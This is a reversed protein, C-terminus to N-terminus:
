SEKEVRAEDDALALLREDLQLIVRANENTPSVAASLEARQREITKRKEAISERTPILKNEQNVMRAHIRDAFVLSAFTIGAVSGAVVLITFAIM